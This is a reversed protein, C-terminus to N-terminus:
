FGHMEREQFHICTELTSQYWAMIEDPTELCM